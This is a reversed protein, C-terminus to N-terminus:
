VCNKRVNGRLVCVYRNTKNYLLVIIFGNRVRRTLTFLDALVVFGLLALYCGVPLLRCSSFYSISYVKM